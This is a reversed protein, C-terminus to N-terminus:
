TLRFSIWVMMFVMEISTQVVLTVENLKYGDLDIFPGHQDAIRDGDMDFFPDKLHASSRRLSDFYM